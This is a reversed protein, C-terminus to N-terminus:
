RTRTRSFVVLLAALWAAGLLYGGLVDSPYHVGLAVRSFGIALVMGVAGAILLRRWWGALVPALVLVLVGYGVIAEQAHGSPFSLGGVRAVPDPWVPRVRDVLAKVGVNLLGSGGDAIVVFLAPYIGLRRVLLWVVLGTGMAWYFPASGVFSLGKNITVFLPHAIAVAHLEDVARVDLALLPSWRARVLLLLLGFPVAVATLVTAAVAARLGLLAVTDTRTPPDTLLM